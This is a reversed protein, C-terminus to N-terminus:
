VLSAPSVILPSDASARRSRGSAATAAAVVQSVISDHRPKLSRHPRKRPGSMMTAIATGTAPTMRRAAGIGRRRPTRIWTATMATRTHNIRPPEGMWGIELLWAIASSM